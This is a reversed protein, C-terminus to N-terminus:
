GIRKDDQEEQQKRELLIGRVRLGMLQKMVIKRVTLKATHKGAPLRTEGALIRRIGKIEESEGSVRCDYEGEDVTIRFEHGLDEIGWFGKADWVIQIRYAADEDTEFEWTLFDQQSFWLETIGNKVEMHSYPDEKHVQAAAAALEVCGDEGAYLGEKMRIGEPCLVRIVPIGCENERVKEEVPLGYIGETRIELRDGTQYFGLAEQTGLVQCSEVSSELGTLVLKEGARGTLILYLADRKRTVQGWGPTYPLGSASTGYVAEGNRELWRGVKLFAEKAQEPVRGGSDPGVNLLLNGGKAAVEAIKLVISQASAYEAGEVFGWGNHTTMPTEWPIEMGSAPIADDAMTMYDTPIEESLRSNVLCGDQTEYVAKKIQEGQWPAIQSPTDFWITLIDGYQTLLERIQPIDFKDIYEQLNKGNENPYDWFNGYNGYLDGRGKKEFSQALPHNWERVHSYYFGLKLGERRCADALEEMPDRGFPTADVINYDSVKTRFMSFGDHHKATIVIYKMGAMKAFHALEDADFQEPNFSDALKRYQAAPIRRTYMVWEGSGCLSYLGWHVFLGLKAEKWWELNEKRSM